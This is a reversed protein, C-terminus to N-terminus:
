RKIRYRYQGVVQMGLSSYLRNAAVNADTTALSLYSAGQGKAWVAAATTLIRGMGSRRMDVHVELAHIMAQAGSIGVYVTGAPTDKARGLLTTKPGEARGMIALREPGIGGDAWIEKQSALPPWSVFSSVPPPRQQTLEELPAAYLTVPDKIVYGLRELQQDLDTEGDRIMFLGSQSWRMMQAEAEVIDDDSVDGNATAASVRSGGGTGRRFTWKETTLYEAAPWTHDIADYITQATPFTM